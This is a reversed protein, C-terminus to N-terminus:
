YDTMTSVKHSSRKSVNNECKNKIPYSWLVNWIIVTILLLIQILNFQRIMTKYQWNMNNLSPMFTAAIVMILLKIQILNFQKTMTKYRESTNNLSKMFILASTITLLM